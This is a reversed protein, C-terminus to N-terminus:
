TKITELYASLLEAAMTVSAPILNNRLWKKIIWFVPDFICEFHTYGVVVKMCLGITLPAAVINTCDHVIM